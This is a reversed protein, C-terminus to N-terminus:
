AGKRADRSELAAVLEKVVPVDVYGAVPHQGTHDDFHHDFGEIGLASPLLFRGEQKNPIIAIEVCQYDDLSVLTEMPISYHSRSGAISLTVDSFQPRFRFSEYTNAM